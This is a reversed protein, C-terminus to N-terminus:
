RAEIKSAPPPWNTTPARPRPRSGSPASPPPRRAAADVEAQRGEPGAAIGAAIDVARPARRAGIGRADARAARHDPRRLEAVPRQGLAAFKAKDVQSMAFLVIFLCMLLTVMDAYSVLWREHNEHEEEEHKKPAQPRSARLREHRRGHSRV